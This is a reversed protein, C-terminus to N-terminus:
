GWRSIMYERGWIPLAGEPIFGGGRRGTPVISFGEDSADSDEKDARDFWMQATARLDGARKTLDVSLDYDKVSTSEMAAQGALYLYSFGVARSISGEGQALYGEIEVDSFKEYEGFGPDPPTLPVSTVDGVLARFQGVPTDLEPPAIGKNM